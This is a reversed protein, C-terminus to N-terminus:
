KKEKMIDAMKQTTELCSKIVPHNADAGKVMCHKIIAVTVNRDTRLVNVLMKQEGNDFFISGGNRGESVKEGKWGKSELEALYAAQVEEVPKEYDINFVGSGDKCLRGGDLVVGLADSEDSSPIPDCPEPKNCAVVLACLVFTLIARPPNFDLTM